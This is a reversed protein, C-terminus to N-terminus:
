GNNREKYWTRMMDPQVAHLTVTEPSLKTKDYGNPWVWHASWGATHGPLYCGNINNRTLVHCVWVDEAWFDPKGATAVHRMARKSLFYGPGGTCVNEHMLGAYDFRNLMVELVLREVYVATDDDCKFVYDFGNELAWKCIAQTKNPLHEYDDPVDLFVEDALPARNHPAGYFFRAEVFPSFAAVDKWWTDRIAAVRPNAGSIHIDSGYPTNKPDYHPSQESEWRGYEFKHCVPIAILLKPPRTELPEIAKSRDNGIHSCHHPLAAIRYGSDLHLKSWIQEHGLGHTGYGVHRGYSGFRKFDSLRRLGPNWCTGGWVGGWYPEAIKFGRPDDVLPHNWDSRLAVMSINPNATLIAHSKALFGSEHFEWDDECWFIFETKLEAYLRDITYAQGMRRDNNIWKVRGLRPFFEDLWAPRPRPGDEVIVTEAPNVNVCDSFSQLTRRLLDHRDCSTVALTYHM